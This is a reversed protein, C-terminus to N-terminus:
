DGSNAYVAFFTDHLCQLPNEQSDCVMSYSSEDQTTCSMKNVASPNDLHHIDSTDASSKGSGGVSSLTIDHTDPMKPAVVLNECGSVSVGSEIVHEGVREDNGLNCITDRGSIAVHDHMDNNVMLSVASSVQCNNETEQVFQQGSLFVTGANLLNPALTGLYEANGRLQV